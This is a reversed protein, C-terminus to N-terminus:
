PLLGQILIVLVLIPLVFQFVPKLGRPMKIGEGANAEALYRDWGWGWKTVCFRLYVLSGIPLRLNSVPGPHAGREM